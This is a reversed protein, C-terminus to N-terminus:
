FKLYKYMITPGNTNFKNTVNNQLIYSNTKKKLTTINPTTYISNYESLPM